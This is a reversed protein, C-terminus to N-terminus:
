VFIDDNSGSVEVRRALVREERCIGPEGIRKVLMQSGGEAARAREKEAVFAIAVAEKAMEWQRPISSSSRVRSFFRAATVRM